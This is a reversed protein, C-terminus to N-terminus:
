HGLQVLDVRRCLGSILPVDPLTGAVISTILRRTRYQVWVPFTRALHPDIIDRPEIPKRNLYRYHKQHEGVTIITPDEDKAKQLESLTSGPKEECFAAGPLADLLALLTADLYQSRGQKEHLTLLRITGFQVIEKADASTWM